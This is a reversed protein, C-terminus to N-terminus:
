RGSVASQVGCHQSEHVGVLVRGAQFAAQVLQARAENEVCASVAFHHILWRRGPVDAQWLLSGNRQREFFMPLPNGGDLPIVSFPTSVM